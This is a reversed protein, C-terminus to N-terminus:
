EMPRNRVAALDALMGLRQERLCGIVTTHQRRLAEPTLDALTQVGALNITGTFARKIEALLLATCQGHGTTM